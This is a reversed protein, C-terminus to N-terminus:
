QTPDKSYILATNSRKNLSIVNSLLNSVPLYFPSGLGKLLSSYYFYQHQFHNSSQTKRTLATWLMVCVTEKVHLNTYLHMNMHMYIYTLRQTHTSVLAALGHSYEIQMITPYNVDEGPEQNTRKFLRILWLSLAPVPTLAALRSIVKRLSQAWVDM